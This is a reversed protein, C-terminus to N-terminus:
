SGSLHLVVARQPALVPAVLGIEGLVAGSVVAGDESNAANWWEPQRRVTGSPGTGGPVLPVVRIRYSRSPDLNPFRWTSPAGDPRTSTIQVHCMLFVSADDAQAGFCVADAGRDLRVFRSGHLFDRWSKYLDVGHRLVARDQDDLRTVDAEIGMHGFMAVATRLAMPLRRGTNHTPSPGVHTGLVEPPMVMSARRHIVSRELADNNDSTWFREVRRLIEHDIRGGGSACSEFEVDPHRRRLQDILRYVAMTQEHAAAKGEAGSGQVVWRNMDWKVYSIRHQSLLTDLQSRVHEFADPRTLDLVWQNRGLTPEYGETALAWDPHARLVDSDPNVMEPEVWIGFDMGLAHVRDILPALGDPYVEPSVTWDGLGARDNRRAGFWGDDLVFREAGVDAAAEALTMLRELDHDFYVAEWTNVHVRRASLPRPFRRRAERHFGWSAPTFGRDSRVGIVTPTSYTEGPYVCMEGPHFLEGLQVYRRGDGLREAYLVHNGSWALHLGWVDGSWEDADPSTAWVYPPHEHSTRGTRNEVTWAGLPWEGHTWGFEAGWRGAYTGLRTARDAIPVSVTLADLMYPGDGINNLEVDISMVDDVLSIRTVLVLSAVHDLAKVEVGIRAVGLHEDDFM